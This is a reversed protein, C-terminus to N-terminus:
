FIFHREPILELTQGSSNKVVRLKFLRGLAQTPELETFTMELNEHLFHTEVVPHTMDQFYIQALVPDLLQTKLVEADDALPVESITPDFGNWWSFHTIQYQDNQRLSVLWRTQAFNVPSIRVSKNGKFAQPLTAYIIGQMAGQLLILLAVGSLGYRSVQNWSLGFWRKAPLLLSGLLLFLSYGTLVWGLHFAFNSWPTLFSVKETSIITLLAYTLLGLLPLFRKLARKGDRFYVWHILAVLAWLLTQYSMSHFFQLGLGMSAEGLRYAWGYDLLPLFAGLAM